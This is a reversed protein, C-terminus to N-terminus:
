NQLLSKCCFLVIPNATMLAAVILPNGLYFM